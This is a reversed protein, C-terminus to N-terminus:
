QQCEHEQKERAVDRSAGRPTGKCCVELLLRRGIGQRVWLGCVHGSLHACPTLTFHCKCTTLRTNFRQMWGNCQHDRFWAECLMLSISYQNPNLM